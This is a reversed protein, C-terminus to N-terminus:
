SALFLNTSIMLLIEHLEWAFREELVYVKGAQVTSGELPVQTRNTIEDRSEESCSASLCPRRLAGSEESRDRSLRLRQLAVTAEASDSCLWGSKLM